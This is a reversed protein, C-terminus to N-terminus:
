RPNGLPTGDPDWTQQVKPGSTSCPLCNSGRQMRLRVSYAHAVTKRKFGVSIELMLPEVVFCAIIRLTTQRISLPHGCGAFPLPRVAGQSPCRGSRAGRLAVAQGRGALLLPGTLRIGGTYNWYPLQCQQFQCQLIARQHVMGDWRAASISMAVRFKRGCIDNTEQTHLCTTIGGKPPSRGCLRCTDHSQQSGM